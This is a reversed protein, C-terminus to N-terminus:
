LVEKIQIKFVNENELEEDSSCESDTSDTEDNFRRLNESLFILKSGIKPFLWM